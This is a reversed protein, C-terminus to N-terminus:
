KIGIKVRPVAERFRKLIRQYAAPDGEVIPDELYEILPHENCTKVLWEIVQDTDFLNKPGEIDYKNQDRLFSSEIDPNIGYKLVKRKDTNVQVAAIADEIFKFSENVNELANYYAGDVGPKFGNEGLKHTQVQKKLQAQVKLYVEIPDLEDEPSIDLILYFKSFKVKSSLAKGGNLVNFIIKPLPAGTVM